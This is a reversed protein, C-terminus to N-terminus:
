SWCRLGTARRRGPPLPRVVLSLKEGHTIWSSVPAEDPVSVGASNELHYSDAAVSTSGTAKAFKANLTKVFFDKLKKVPGSRWKRPLTIKMTHAKGDESGVAANNNQKSAGDCSAEFVLTVKLAKPKSMNDWLLLLLWGLPQDVGTIPFIDIINGM